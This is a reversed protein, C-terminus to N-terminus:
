TQGGQDTTGPSRFPTVSAFREILLPTSAGIKVALIPKLSFDSMLYMCVIGGGAIIMFITAFWYFPSKLWEPFMNTYRLKFLGLLEVFCGGAMGWMFGHFITM